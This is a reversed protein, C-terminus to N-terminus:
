FKDRPASLASSRYALNVRGIGNEGRAVNSGRHAIPERKARAKQASIIRVRYGTSSVPDARVPWARPHQKGDPAAPATADGSVLRGSLKVAGIKGIRQADSQGLHCADRIRPLGRLIRLDAFVNRDRIELGDRKRNQVNAFEAFRRIRTTGHLERGRKRAIAYKSAAFTKEARKRIGRLSARLRCRQCQRAPRQETIQAHQQTELGLGDSCNERALAFKPSPARMSRCRFVGRATPDRAYRTKSSGSPLQTRPARRASVNRVHLRAEQSTAPSASNAANVVRPPIM